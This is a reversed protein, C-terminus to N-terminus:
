RQKLIDQAKSLKDCVILSVIKDKIEVKAKSAKAYEKPAYEKNTTKLEDLVIELGSAIENAIDADSCEFLAVTDANPAIDSQYFVYDKCTSVDIGYYDMLDTGDIQYMSGLGAEKAIKNYIDEMSLSDANNKQTDKETKKEAPETTEAAQTAEVAESTQGAAEVTTEALTTEVAATTTEEKDSNKCGTFAIAAGMCVTIVAVGSIKLVNNKKM